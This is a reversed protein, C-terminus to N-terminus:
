GMENIDLHGLAKSAEDTKTLDGRLARSFRESVKRVEIEVAVRMEIQQM